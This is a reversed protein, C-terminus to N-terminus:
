GVEYSISQWMMFKIVRFISLFFYLLVNKLLSPFPLISVFLFPDIFTMTHSDLNGKFQLKLVDTNHLIKDHNNQIKQM